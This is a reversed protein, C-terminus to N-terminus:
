EWCLRPHAAALGVLEDRYLLASADRAGHLVHLLAEGPRSLVRRVIARIPAVGTGDAVFVMTASPPEDVTFTGFPGKLDLTAGRSLTFLYQSGLGGPVLDVAIELLEDDPDSALSYPRVLPPSEGVPLALSVFQGPSFPMRDASTLRLFLSRTSATWEQIRELRAEYRAAPM